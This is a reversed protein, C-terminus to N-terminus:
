TQNLEVTLHELAGIGYNTLGLQAGSVFKRM